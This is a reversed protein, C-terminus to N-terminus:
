YTEERLLRRYFIHGNTFIDYMAKIYALTAEVTELAERDAMYISNSEASLKKETVSVGSAGAVAKSMSARELSRAKILDQELQYKVQSLSATIVLLESAKRELDFSSTGRKHDLLALGKNILEDVDTKKM